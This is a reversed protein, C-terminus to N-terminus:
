YTVHSSVTYACYVIEFSVELDQNSTILDEDQGNDWKHLLITSHFYSVVSRIVLATFILSTRCSFLCPEIYDHYYNDTDGSEAAAVDNRLCRSQSSPLAVGMICLATLFAVAKKM